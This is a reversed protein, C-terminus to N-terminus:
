RGGPSGEGRSGIVEYLARLLGLWGVFGIGATQAGRDSSDPGALLRVSGAPPEVTDLRIVIEM